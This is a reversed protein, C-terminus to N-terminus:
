TDVTLGKYSSRAKSSKRLGEQLPNNKGLSEIEICNELNQSSLSDLLSELAQAGFTASNKIRKATKTSTLPSSGSVDAKCLCREVM